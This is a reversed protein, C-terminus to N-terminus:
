LTHCFPNCLTLSQLTHCRPNCLADPIVFHPPIVFHTLVLLEMNRFRIKCNEVRVLKKFKKWDKKPEELLGIHVILLLQECINKLIHKRLFKAFKVPFCRDSDRKLITASRFDEQLKILISELENRSRLWKNSFFSIVQFCFSKSRLKSKLSSQLGEAKVPCFILNEM